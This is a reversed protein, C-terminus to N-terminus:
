AFFFSALIRFVNVRVIYLGGLGSVLGGLGLM